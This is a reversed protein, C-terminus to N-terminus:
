IRPLHQGMIKIESNMAKVLADSSDNCRKFIAALASLDTADTLNNLCTQLEAALRGVELSTFTSQILTVLGDPTAASYIKQATAEYFTREEKFNRGDLFVSEPTKADRLWIERRKFVQANYLAGDMHFAYEKAASRREKMAEVWSLRQFNLDSAHQQWLQSVIGVILGGILTVVFPSNLFAVWDMPKPSPSPQTADSNSQIVDM